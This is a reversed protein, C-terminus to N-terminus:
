RVVVSGRWKAHLWLLVGIACVELPGRPLRTFSFADLGTYNLTALHIAWILGVAAIVAAIRIEWNTGM